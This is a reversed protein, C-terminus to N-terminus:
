VDGGRAMNVGVGLVIGVPSGMLQESHLPPEDVQLPTAGHVADVAMGEVAAVSGTSGFGDAGGVGEGVGEGVSEGMSRGMSFAHFAGSSGHGVLGRGDVGPGDLRESGQTKYSYEPGPSDLRENGQTKYPYEPGGEDSDSHVVVTAAFSTTSTLVSETRKAASATREAAGGVSSSAAGSGSRAYPLM